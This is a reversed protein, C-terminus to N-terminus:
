LAESIRALESTRLRGAALGYFNQFSMILPRWADLDIRDPAALIGEHAHLSGTSTPL